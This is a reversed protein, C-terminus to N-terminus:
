NIENIMIFLIHLISFFFIMANNNKKCLIVGRKQATNNKM